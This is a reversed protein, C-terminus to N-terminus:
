AAVRPSHEVFAPPAGGGLIWKYLERLKRGMELMSFDAQMWQRGAEGMRALEQPERSTLDILAETVARVNVDVSWGCRRSNLGSWNTARTVLAPVGHALAESVALPCGEGYSALVFADASYFEISKEAGYVPGRIRVRKCNLASALLRLKAVYAAEGPGVVHLEWDQARPEVERWAKLLLDIGKRSDIRGLYLLKRMTGPERDPRRKPVEVALPIVAIPASLGMKRYGAIEAEAIAHLCSAQRILRCQVMSWVLQKRFRSKSMSWTNFAGHATVVAPVRSRSAAQLAYAPPFTWLGHSHILDSRAAVATLAHRLAPAVGLKKLGKWAQYRYVVVPDTSGPPAGGLSHLEVEVGAAALTTTMNLVAKSLGNAEREITPCVHSIRMPM